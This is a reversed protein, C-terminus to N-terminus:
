PVVTIHAFVNFTTGGFVVTSHILHEGVSLPHLMLWYGDSVAAQPSGTLCPDLEATLSLDGTVYFLPSTIRQQSLEGLSVGDVDASVHSVQDIIARSAQALFDDLSQGPAPAFSSDPCPFDSETGIVPFFLAKGAPVTCHIEGSIPGMMFWVPGSQQYACNGRGLFPNRDAPISLAFQWFRESWEAYTHGYPKTNVPILGPHAKTSGAWASSASLWLGVSVALSAFTRITHLQQNHKYSNTM